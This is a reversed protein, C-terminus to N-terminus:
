NGARLFMDGDILDNLFTLSPKSAEFVPIMHAGRILYKAMVFGLAKEEDYVRCGAWKTKPVWKSPKLMRVVAIDHLSKDPLRCRLLQVLHAVTLDEPKGNVLVHDYRRNNHFNPNCRLIDTKGTWNVCSQYKLRICRHPKIQFHTLLTLIFTVLNCYVEIM